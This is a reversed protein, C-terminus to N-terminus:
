DASFAGFSAGVSSAFENSLALQRARLRTSIWTLDPARSDLRPLGSVDLNLVLEYGAAAPPLALPEFSGAFVVLMQVFRDAATAAPVAPAPQAWGLSALVPFRSKAPSIVSTLDIGSLVPDDFGLRRVDCSFRRRAIGPSRLVLEPRTTLDEELLWSLLTVAEASAADQDYPIGLELAFLAALHGAPEQGELSGATWRAMLAGLAADREPEREGHWRAQGLLASARDEDRLLDALAALRRPAPVARGRGAAADYFSIVECGSEPSSPSSLDPV